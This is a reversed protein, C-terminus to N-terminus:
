DSKSADVLKRVEGILMTIRPNVEVEIDSALAHVKETLARVEEDLQEIKADSLASGIETDNKLLYSFKSMSHIIKLQNKVQKLKSEQIFGEELEHEIKTSFQPESLFLQIITVNMGICRLADELNSIDASSGGDTITTRAISGMVGNLEAENKWTEMTRTYEHYNNVKFIVFAELYTIPVNELRSNYPGFSLMRPHDELQSVSHWPAKLHIGSNKVENNVVGIFGEPIVHISLGFTILACIFSIASVSGCIIKHVRSCRSKKQCSIPTTTTRYPNSQIQPM